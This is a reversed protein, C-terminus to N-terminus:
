RDCCEGKPIDNGHPCKRPHNLSTCVADAIEESIHHEMGCVNEHVNKDLKMNLIDTLLLKTLNVGIRAEYKILNTAKMKKLMEVASPPSIDM